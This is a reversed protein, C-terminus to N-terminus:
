CPEECKSCIYTSESSNWWYGLVNTEIFILSKGAQCSNVCKGEETFISASETGCNNVCLSDDTEYM